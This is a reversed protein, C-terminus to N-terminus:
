SHVLWGLQLACTDQQGIIVEGDHLSYGLEQSHYEINHPRSVGTWFHDRFGHPEIRVHDYGVYGHGAQAADLRCMLQTLFPRRCFHDEQRNVRFIFKNGGTRGYAAQAVNYFRVHLSVQDRGNM